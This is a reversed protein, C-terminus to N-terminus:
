SYFIISFFKVTPLLLRFITIQVYKSKIEFYTM